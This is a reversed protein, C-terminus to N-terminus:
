IACKHFQLFPSTMAHEYCSETPGLVDRWPWSAAPWSLTIYSYELGTGKKTNNTVNNTINNINNSINDNDQTSNVPLSNDQPSNAMTLHRCHTPWPTNATSLQGMGSERTANQLPLQERKRCLM